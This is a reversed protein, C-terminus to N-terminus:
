LEPPDFQGNGDVDVQVANTMGVARCGRVVPDMRQADPGTALAAYWTDATPSVSIDSNFRVAPHAPDVQGPPQLPLTAVTVGNAILSLEEVAVWDAAQVIVHVDFPPTVTVLDGVNGDQVHITVFIGGAVMARGEKLNTWIEDLDIDRPEDTSSAVMTRSIGAERDRQHVDGVGVATKFVGQNNMSSWVPLTKNLMDDTDNSNRMEVTDFDLCLKEPDLEDLRPMTGPPDYGLYEFYAGAMPHAVNIIQAGLERARPWIECLEMQRVFEDDEYEAWPIQWFIWGTPHSPLPFATSHAYMPSIENGVVVNLYGDPDFSQEQGMKELFPNLDVQCDHDTAVMVEVNECINAALKDEIVWTSDVGRTSHSHMDISIFGSTDVQRELTGSVASSEGAAVTINERHIAYEFGRSLTVTWDGVPIIFEGQGTAGFHLSPIHVGANMAADHGSQISIKCPLSAGSDDQCTYALRAPEPISADQQTTQDATVSLTNSTHDNRGIARVELQYDGAPLQMEFTGSEDAFTQNVYNDETPLSIDRALVMAGAEPSGATDSVTGGVLGQGVEGRMENLIRLCADMGGDAVILWREVVLPEDKGAEGEGAQLPTVGDLSILVTIDGGEAGTYISCTNRSAGGLYHHEGGPLEGEFVGSYRVFDTNSDGNLVIDGVTVPIASPGRSRISTRIRLYNVDPELIYENVIELRKRELSGSIASDVIPIGRHKGTFRIIAAQGDSGDALVEAATPQMSLLDVTLFLEDLEEGGEVGEERVLDADLLSGGYPGWHRPEFANQVVFAVRSNYIKYDGLWGHADIGELLESDRTIVGARVEGPDLREDLPLGGGGDEACAGVLIALGAFWFLKRM